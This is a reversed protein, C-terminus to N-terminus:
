DKRAQAAEDTKVKAQKEKEERQKVSYEFPSDILQKNEYQLHHKSFVNLIILFLLIWPSVYNKTKRVQKM